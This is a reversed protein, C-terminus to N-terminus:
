KTSKKKGFVSKIKKFGLKLRTKKKSAEETKDEQDKSVESSAKEENTESEEDVVELVLKRKGSKKAKKSKEEKETKSSQEDDKKAEKKSELQAEEKDEKKAPEHEDDSNLDLVKKAKIKLKAKDATDKVKQGQDLSIKRYKNLSDLVVSDHTALLLTTGLDNIKKLIKIIGQSTDPDLNGTPEDAFILKPGTALARAISIRQAEGGSLQNPFVLAKDTLSVLKLLDTVRTEIESQSKGIIYLPLAINEWVNLDPILKYDQFVVGIKRRHHPIQSKKLEQVAQDLFIIEGSSPLYERILLKMLTTKGSGSPGTILVLEGPDVAFDVDQIAITGNPFQKSVDSFRIM